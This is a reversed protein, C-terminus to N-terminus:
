MDIHIALDSCAGDRYRDSSVRSSHHCLCLIIETRTLVISSRDPLSRAVVAVGDM